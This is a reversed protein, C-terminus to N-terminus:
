EIDVIKTRSSHGRVIQVARRSVGFHDALVRVLGDNASGDVARERLYVTLEREGDVVILPGKSSGPKAHVTLRVV